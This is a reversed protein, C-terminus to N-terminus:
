STWASRAPSRTRDCGRWRTAAHRAVIGAQPGGLLKDGSMTVVTAGDRVADRAVPEGTLGLADLPLFCGAGWITCCRCARRRRWRRWRGCRCTPWSGRSPSTAVSAGEGGRRRGGRRRVCPPLRRPAHPQDHGSGGAARREQAHHRARPLQRRDGGARRAVRDRGRGDAFTNLALVMAAAGNNVVLADEAGTLEQLLGVCHAYRSGARATSWITSSIPIAPRRSRSRTWRRARSRPAASTPTCCSAPPTSCRVCRAASANTSRRTWPPAGRHRIARHAIRIAARTSWRM